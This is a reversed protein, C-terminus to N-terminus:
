ALVHEELRALQDNMDQLGDILVVRLEDNDEPTDLAVLFSELMDRHRRTDTLEKCMLERSLEGIIRQQRSCVDLLHDGYRVQDWWRLLTRM